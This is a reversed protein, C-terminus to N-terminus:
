NMRSYVYNLYHYPALFVSAGARFQLSYVGQYECSVDCARATQEPFKRLNSKLGYLLMHSESSPDAVIIIVAVIIFICIQVRKLCSKSLWFPDM